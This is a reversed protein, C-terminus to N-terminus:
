MTFGNLASARLSRIARTIPPQDFGARVASAARQDAETREQGAEHVAQSANPEIVEPVCRASRESGASQQGREDRKERESYRRRRLAALLHRHAGPDVGAKPPQHELPGRRDPDVAPLLATAIPEAEPPRELDNEIRGHRTQAGIELARM